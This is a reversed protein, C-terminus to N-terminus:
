PGRGKRSRTNPIGRAGQISEDNGYQIGLAALTDGLATVGLGTRRGGLTAAKVKEWLDIEIKKIDSNEADKRVKSLIKDVAETELDILDDMLRQAKVVTQEFEDFDFEADNSFPNKVFKQLNVVMLRCSDYPSLPIEACPNTSITQYGVDSYCDAPGRGTVRDWFLAGPEACDHAADVFKEWIERANVTTTYEAEEITSNIPWRLVFYEAEEITSNIPWRLVFESDSEVAQMFEDTFKVSINAGTVRKRDRKVEIFTSIEPHRCDITLMLAGRRGGQAVERCSNSFRDMFVGIGDTTRAANSTPLGKPRINSIDFGVGGRRKMIQVQEQDTFLIGGYSDEPPAVVFCNSLSQVQNNNGIGSLPSGQPIIRWDSLLNFIEDYSMPNDYGSEARHLEVAIRKHMEDPTIELLNGDLAPLSYKSAFVSAALEDGGFYELTAQYVKDYTYM